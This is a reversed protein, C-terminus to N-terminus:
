LEKGDIAITEMYVSIGNPDHAWHFKLEGVSCTGATFNVMYTTFGMAQSYASCLFNTTFPHAYHEVFDESRIINIQYLSGQAEKVLLVGAIGLLALLIIPNKMTARSLLSYLLM